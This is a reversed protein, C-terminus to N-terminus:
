EVLDRMRYMNVITSVGRSEEGNRGTRAAYDVTFTCTVVFAKRPACLRAIYNREDGTFKRGEKGLNLMRAGLDFVCFSMAIASWNYSATSSMSMSMYSSSRSQSGEWSRRSASSSSSSGRPMGVRWASVVAMNAMLALAMAENV